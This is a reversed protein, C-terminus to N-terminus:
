IDAIALLELRLEESVKVAPPQGNLFMVGEMGRLQALVTDAEFGALHGALEACAVRGPSERLIMLAQALGATDVQKRLFSRRWAKIGGVVLRPGTYLIDTILKASADPNFALASLAGAVGAHWVLAPPAAQDLSLDSLYERSTRANGLFLLGLFVWCVVLIEQHSIHLSHSAVLQWLASAGFNVVFWVLAYTFFFTITLVVAGLGLALGAVLRDQVAALRLKRELWPEISNM